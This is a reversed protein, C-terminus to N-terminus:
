SPICRLRSRIWGFREMCTLPRASRTRSCWSAAATQWRGTVLGTQRTRRDQMAAPCSISREMSSRWASGIRSTRWAPIWRWTPWRRARRAIVGLNWRASAARSCRVHQAYVEADIDVEYLASPTTPGEHTLCRIRPRVAGSDASVDLSLLGQRGDRLVFQRSLVRKRLSERLLALFAEFGAGDAAAASMRLHSLPRM